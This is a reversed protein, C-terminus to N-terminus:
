EIVHFALASNGPNKLTGDEHRQERPPPIHIFRKTIYPRSPDGPYQDMVWIGGEQVELLLAAHRSSREGPRDVQPYRGNIFTAIATGRPCTKGAKLAELL